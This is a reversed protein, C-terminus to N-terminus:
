NEVAVCVHGRVKILLGVERRVTANTGFQCPDEQVLTLVSTCSNENHSAGSCFRGAEKELKPLGGANRPEPGSELDQLSALIFQTKLAAQKGKPEGM